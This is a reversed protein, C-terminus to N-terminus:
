KTPFNPDAKIEDIQLTHRATHGAIFLFSQFADVPGFPSDSIHNRLDAENVNALYDFIVKRDNKLAALAEDAKNLLNKGTLDDTAKAKHSRDNIGQIIEEDSVKVESRRAPTAPSEMAQKAYGFLTKETAVIHELCQGVSWKDAAPKFHLQAASLNGTSKTLADLTKQYYDLLYKKNNLKAPAEQSQAFSQTGVSGLILLMTLLQSLSRRM